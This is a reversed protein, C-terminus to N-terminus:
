QTCRLSTAPYAALVASCAIASVLLAPLLLHHKTPLTAHVEHLMGLVHLLTATSQSCSVHDLARTSCVACLLYQAAHPPGSASCLLWRSPNVAHALGAAPVPHWEQVVLLLHAHLSPGQKSLKAVFLKCHQVAFVQAVAAAVAATDKRSWTRMTLSFNLPLIMAM